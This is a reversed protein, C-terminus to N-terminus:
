RVTGDDCGNLLGFIYENFGSTTQISCKDRKYFIKPVIGITEGSDGVKTRHVPKAGLRFKKHMGIIKKKKNFMIPNSSWEIYSNQVYGFYTGCVGWKSVILNGRQM